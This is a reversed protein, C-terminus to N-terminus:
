RQRGLRAKLAGIRAYAERVRDEGIRGSRVAAVIADRAKEGAEPDHALMNAFIVVDVGASVARVVAEGPEFAETITGMQMDDSIVLGAFGADARLDQRISGASLSAPVQMGGDEVIVHSAMVADALGAAVLDAHVQEERARDAPNGRTAGKHSDGAASGHGPWHKLCTLVGAWRHASIFVKAYDFVASGDSGFSRGLRGIVPNHANIDLDVVPALNLNIGHSDLDLAMRYYLGYAEEPSRNRAV